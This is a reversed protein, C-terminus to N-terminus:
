NLGNEVDQEPQRSHRKRLSGLYFPTEQTASRDKQRPVRSERAATREAFSQRQQKTGKDAHYMYVGAAALFLLPVTFVIVLAWVPAQLFSSVDLAFLSTLFSMPLFWVTVVTFVMVTKGQKVAQQAQFNALESEQLSITSIFADHLQNANNDLEIIDGLVYAALLDERRRTEGAMKSRVILQYRAITKLINLEDRVDKIRHLQSAGEGLARDLEEVTFSRYGTEKLQQDRDSFLSFLKSERRGIENVYDSYVQRISRQKRRALQQSVVGKDDDITAVQTGDSAANAEPDERTHEGSVYDENRKQEYAYICYDVIVRSMDNASAPPARYSGSEVENDVYKLVNAVLDDKEGNTDDIIWIWLQSVRLLPWYNRGELGNPYLYKTVVQTRNRMNREENSDDAFHYYFEDLTSPEHFASAKYANLLTNRKKLDSLIENEKADFYKVAASQSYEETCVNDEDRHYFSFELYPMYLASADLFESDPEETTKTSGESTSGQDTNSNSSRGDASEDETDGLSATSPTATSVASNAEEKGIDSGNIDAGGKRDTARQREVYRPRMLRSSSTQDPIQVWSDRFFSMIGRNQTEGCNERKLIKKAVNQMWDINASPLHVWTFEVQDMVTNMTFGAAVEAPLDKPLYLKKLMRNLTETFVEITDQGYVIDKVSRFRYIERSSISSDYSQLVTARVDSLAELMKEDPELLTLVEISKCPRRVLFLELIEELDRIDQKGDEDNKKDSQRTAVDPKKGKDVGSSPLTSTTNRFKDLLDRCRKYESNLARHDLAIEESRTSIYHLLPGQLRYYVLWEMVQWSSSDLHEPVNEAASATSLIQQALKHRQVDAIVWYLLDKDLDEINTGPPHLRSILTDLVPRLVEDMGDEDFLIDFATSGDSDRALLLNDAVHHIIELPVSADHALIASEIAFHLATGKEDDRANVDPNLKLLADICNRDRQYDGKEEFANACLQTLPTRGENNPIDFPKGDLTQAHDILKQLTEYYCKSAATFFVTWGYIDRPYLDANHGLLVGVAETRGYYCAMNLPTQQHLPEMQNLFMNEPGLLQSIVAHGGYRSAWHLPLYGDSDLHEVRAGKELLLKVLETSKGKFALQLPQVKYSNEAHIDAGHNILCNAMKYFGKKALMHLGSEHLKNPARTNVYDKWDSLAKELDALGTEDDKAAEILDHLSAQTSRSSDVHEEDDTEDSFKVSASDESGTSLRPAALEIAVVQELDDNDSMQGNSESDTTADLDESQAM